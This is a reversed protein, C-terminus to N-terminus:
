SEDEEDDMAELVSLLEDVLEQKSVEVQVPGNNPGTIETRTHRGFFQPATRELFWAAAQWNKPAAEQIMGLNRSVAAARAEEVDIVFTSYREEMETLPEGAERKHIAAEGKRLWDYLSTRSIGASSAAHEVYNGARLSQVIHGYVEPTLLPKHPRAM